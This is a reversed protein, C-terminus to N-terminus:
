PVPFLGKWHPRLLKHLEVQAAYTARALEAASSDPMSSCYLCAPPQERNNPGGEASKEIEYHQWM